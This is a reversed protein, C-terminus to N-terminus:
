GEARDEAMSTLEQRFIYTMVRSDKLVHSRMRLFSRMPIESIRNVPHTRLPLASIIDRSKGDKREEMFIFIFFAKEYWLSILLRTIVRTVVEKRNRGRPLFRM